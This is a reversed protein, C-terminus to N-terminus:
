NNDQKEWKEFEALQKKYEEADWSIGWNKVYDKLPGLNMEARRQDVHDPDELPSVYYENTKSNTSIQSGYIQKRGERLAVRDELLALSSKQANGKNVAERMIPLYKQQTKLDAHQIVLFITQSAQEGVKDKGLWGYEDVIKKIEVLNISDQYIMIKALSDITRNKYGLKNGAEIYKHRIVQDEDYIRLLEKQLPKDYNAEIADVKKQMRSVLQDWKKNSHLGVFDPDNKLHIVYLWGNEFALNLWAFANKKDGALAAACAGNYLHLNDKAEIKFAKQYFETSQKYDKSQYFNEAQTILERYKQAFAISGSFVFCSTLIYLRVQLLNKSM